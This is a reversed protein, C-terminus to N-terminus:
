LNTSVEKLVTRPDAPVEAHPRDFQTAPGLKSLNRSGTLKEGAGCRVGSLRSM